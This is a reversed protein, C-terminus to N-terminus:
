KHTRIHRSKFLGFTISATTGHASQQCMGHFLLSVAAQATPKQFKNLDLTSILWKHSTGTSRCSSHSGPRVSYQWANGSRQAALLPARFLRDLCASQMSHMSCAWVPQRAIVGIASCVAKGEQCTLRAALHHLHANQYQMASDHLSCCRQATHLGTCNGTPPPPLRSTVISAPLSM